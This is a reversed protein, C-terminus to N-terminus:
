GNNEERRVEAYFWGAVACSPVLLFWHWTYDSAGISVGSFFAAAVLIWVSRM